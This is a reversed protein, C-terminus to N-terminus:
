APWSAWSWLRAWFRSSRWRSAASSIRCADLDQAGGGDRHDRDTERRWLPLKHRARERGEGGGADDRTELAVLGPESTLRDITAGTLVSLPNFCLNGWLKLWIETRIDRTIPADLKGANMIGSLARVRAGVSGDPEGIVFRNSTSQEVVGPAVVEAWPYLVSGIVREPPLM